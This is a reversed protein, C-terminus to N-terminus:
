QKVPFMLVRSQMFSLNPMRELIRLAEPSLVEQTALKATPTSKKMMEELPQLSSRASEQSDAKFVSTKESSDSGQVVLFDLDLTNATLPNTLGSSSWDFDVPPIDQVSTVTQLQEQRPQEIIQNAQHKLPKTGNGRIPELLNMGSSYFPVAQKKQTFLVNQTDIKLTGYVEKCCHSSPWNYILAHCSDLDKLQTWLRVKPDKKAPHQVVTWTQQKAELPNTLGLEVVTDLPTLDQDGAHEQPPLDNDLDESQQVVPTVQPFCNLVARELKQAKSQGSDGAIKQNSAPLSKDAPVPPEKRTEAVEASGFDAWGAEGVDPQGTNGFDGFSDDSEHNEPAGNPVAPSVSGFDGFDEDSNGAEDFAAFDDEGESNDNFRAPQGTGFDIDNSATDEADCESVRFTIPAVEDSSDDKSNVVTNFEGFELDDEFEADCIVGTHSESEVTPVSGHGDNSIEAVPTESITSYGLTSSSEDGASVELNIDSGQEPLSNVVAEPYSAQFEQIESSGNNKSGDLIGSDVDPKKSHEVAEISGSSESCLKVDSLKGSDGNDNVCDKVHNQCTLGDVVQSSLNPSVVLSEEPTVCPVPQTAVHEETAAPDVISHVSPPLSPSDAPHEVTPLSPSDAPHEVTPLSPSDAPHEVTPPLSHSYEPHELSSPLSNSHEETPLSHSDRVEPHEQTELFDHNAPVDVTTEVLGAASFNSWDDEDADVMNDNFPADCEPKSAEDHLSPGAEHKLANPISHVDHKLADPISLEGEHKVEYVTRDNAVPSDDPFSTEFDSAELKRCMDSPYFNTSPSLDTSFVGSDVTSSNSYVSENNKLVTCSTSGAEATEDLSLNRQQPLQQQAENHESNHQQSLIDTHRTTTEHNCDNGLNDDFQAFEEFDDEAEPADFNNNGLDQVTNPCRDGSSLPNNNEVNSDAIHFQNQKDKSNGPQFDEPLSLDSSSFNVDFSSVAQPALNPAMAFNGFDDDDEDDWGMPPPSSSVIPIVNSM